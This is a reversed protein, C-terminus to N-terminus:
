DKAGQEKCLREYSANLSHIYALADKNTLDTNSGSRCSEETAPITRDNM